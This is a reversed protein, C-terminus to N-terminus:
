AVTYGEATLATEVAATLADRLDDDLRGVSVDEEWLTVPEPNGAETYRYRVGYTEGNNGYAVVTVYPSGRYVVDTDADPDYTEWSGVPHVVVREFGSLNTAYNGVVLGQEVRARDFERREGTKVHEGVLLEPTVVTVTWEDIRPSSVDADADKLRDGVHIGFYVPHTPRWEVSVRDPYRTVLAEHGQITRREVSFEDDEVPRRRDDGPTDSTAPVM